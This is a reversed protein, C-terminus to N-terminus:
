ELRSASETVVKKILDTVVQRENETFNQLVYDEGKIREEDNNVRNDVGIRVRWFDSKGLEKEISDIGNHLKPGVGKQIKYEGINIDLDDHIIWIDPVKIKYFDALKKVAVGSANMFTQPKCFIILSQHKVTLSNFKKSMSWKDNVMQRALEDIVMFGVNHRTYKYKEGPNGIGVILKM